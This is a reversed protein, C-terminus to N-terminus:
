FMVVYKLHQERVARCTVAVVLSQMNNEALMPISTFINETHQRPFKGGKM